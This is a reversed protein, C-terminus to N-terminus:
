GKDALSATPSGAVQVPSDWVNASEEGALTLGGGWAIVGEWPGKPLPSCDLDSPQRAFLVGEEQDHKGGGEWGLMNCSSKRMMWSDWYSVTRSDMKLVSNSLRSKLRYPSLVWFCSGMLNLLWYAAAAAGRKGLPPPLLSPSKKLVM